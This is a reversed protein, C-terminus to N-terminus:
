GLSRASEFLVGFLLHNKRASPATRSPKRHQKKAPHVNHDEAIPM